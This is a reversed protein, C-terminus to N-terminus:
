LFLGYWLALCVAGLVTAVFDLFEPTGRGTLDWLEKSAAVLAVFLFAIPLGLPYFIAFTSLGAFFHYIKDRRIM